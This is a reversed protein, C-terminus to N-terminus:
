VRVMWGDMSLRAVDFTGPSFFFIKFHDRFYPLPTTTEKTKLTAEEMTECNRLHQTVVAILWIVRQTWVATYGLCLHRIDTTQVRSEFFVVPIDFLQVSLNM